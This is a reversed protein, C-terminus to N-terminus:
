ESRDNGENFTEAEGTSLNVRMAQGGYGHLMDHGRIIVNNVQTPITVPTSRTFPANSHAHLLVRRALVNGERDEVQWWDAFNPSEGEDDHQLTVHFVYEDGGLHEFKVAIVNAERLDLETPM